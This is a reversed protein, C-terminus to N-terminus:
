GDAHTSERRRGNQFPPFPSKEAEAALRLWAEAMDLIMKRHRVLDLVRAIELCHDARKRYEYATSTDSM